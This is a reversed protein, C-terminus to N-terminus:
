VVKRMRLDTTDDPPGRDRGIAESSVGERDHVLARDGTKAEGGFQKFAVLSAMARELTGLRQVFERAVLLDDIGVQNVATTLDPFAVLLRQKAGMHEKLALETGRLAVCIQGSSVEIGKAALVEMIEVPRPPRGELIMKQAADRIEATKNVFRRGLKMGKRSKRRPSPKEGTSKGGTAVLRMGGTPRSKKAAEAM